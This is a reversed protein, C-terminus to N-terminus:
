IIKDSVFLQVLERRRLSFNSLGLDKRMAAVLEDVRDVVEISKSPRSAKGQFNNFAKVVQPGGYSLIGIKLDLMSKQVVESEWDFDGKEYRTNVLIRVLGFFIEYIEIKKQRHAEQRNITSERIYAALATGVAVVGAVIAVQVTKDLSFFGFALYYFAFIALALVAWLLIRFKIKELM